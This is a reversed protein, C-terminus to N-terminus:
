GLAQLCHRLEADVDTRLAVTAAVEARIIEQYRRGLRHVLVASVANEVSTAM